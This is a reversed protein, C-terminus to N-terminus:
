PCAAAELGITRLADALAAALAQAHAPLESPFPAVLLDAEVVSTAELLAGAVPPETQQAQTAVLHLIDHARTHFAELIDNDETVAGSAIDCVGGMAQDAQAQTAQETSGSSGTSGSPDESGGGCASTTLALVALALILGLSSLPRPRM